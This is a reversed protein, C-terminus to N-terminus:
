IKKMIYKKISPTNREFFYWVLWASSISLVISLIFIPLGHEITNSRYNNSISSILTLIPFHVLYLSYSIKSIFNSFNKGYEFFQNHLALIIIMTIGGIIYDGLLNNINFIKCSILVILGLICLTISILINNKLEFFLKKNKLRHSLFGFLWIPFLILVNYGIFISICILLFFLIYKKTKTIYFLIPFLIYYWFEYALSWFPGNSGYTPVYITQLFLINGLFVLFSWNVPNPPASNILKNINGLYFDPNFLYYGIHDLVFTILLCPILVVWLRIIRTVLYNKIDFNNEQWQREISGAVLFGSLVFFIIVSPHGLGSILYFFKTLITPTDSYNKLDVFFFSRAHSLLVLIAAIGRLWNLGSIERNM